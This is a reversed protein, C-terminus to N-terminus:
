IIGKIEILYRLCMSLMEKYKLGEATEANFIVGFYHFQIVERGATIIQLTRLSYDLWSQWERQTVADNKMLHFGKEIVENLFKLRIESKM